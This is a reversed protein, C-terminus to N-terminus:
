VAAHWRTTPCTAGAAHGLKACHLPRQLPVRTTAAMAPYLYALLHPGFVPFLPSYSHATLHHWVLVTCYHKQPLHYTTTVRHCTGTYYFCAPPAAAPWHYSPHRCPAVATAPIGMAALYQLFAFAYYIMHTHCTSPISILAVGRCTAGTDFHLAISCCCLDQLRGYQGPTCHPPSHPLPPIAPVPPLYYPLDM